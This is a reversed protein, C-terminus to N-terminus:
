PFNTGPLLDICRPNHAVVGQIAMPYADLGEKSIDRYAYGYFTALDGEEVRMILMYAKTAITM